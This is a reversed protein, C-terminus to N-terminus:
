LTIKVFRKKGVKLTISDHVKTNVDTIKEGTVANSVANEEVLRRFDSKSDVIKGSVLTESLLTGNTTKIEEINKYPGHMERYAIIANATSWRLYPHKM